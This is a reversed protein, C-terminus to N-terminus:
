EGILPRLVVLSTKIDKFNEMRQGIAMAGVREKKAWTEIEQITKVMKLELLFPSYEQLFPINNGQASSVDKKKMDKKELSFPYIACGRKM